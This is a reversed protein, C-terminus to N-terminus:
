IAKKTKVLTPLRRSELKYRSVSKSIFFSKQTTTQKKIIYFLYIGHVCTATRRNLLLDCFIDFHSYTVCEAIAEHAGKGNKGCKSTMQSRNSFLFVAVHFKNTLYVM